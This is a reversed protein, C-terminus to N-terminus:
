KSFGIIERIVFENQLYRVDSQQGLLYDIVSARQTRVRELFRRFLLQITHAHFNILQWFHEVYLVKNVGALRALGNEMLKKYRLFVSYNWNYCRRPRLVVVRKTPLKRMEVNRSFGTDDVIRLPHVYHGAHVYAWNVESREVFMMAPDHDLLSLFSRQFNYGSVLVTGNKFLIRMPKRQPPPPSLSSPDATPQM